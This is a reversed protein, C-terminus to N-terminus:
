IKSKMSKLWSLPVLTIKLHSCLTHTHHKMPLIEVNKSSATIMLSKALNKVNQKCALEKFYNQASQFAFCSHWILPGLEKIMTPIHILYHQKPTINVEPFHEEFNQLHAGIKL